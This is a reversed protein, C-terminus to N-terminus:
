LNPRARELLRRLYTRALSTFALVQVSLSLISLIKEPNVLYM